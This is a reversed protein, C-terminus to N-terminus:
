NTKIWAGAGGKDFGCSFQGGHMETMAAVCERLYYVARQRPSLVAADVPISVASTLDSYMFAISFDGRVSSPYVVAHMKGDAYENLAESLENTLRQVKLLASKDAVPSAVATAIPLVLSAGAAPLAKLANRRTILASDAM